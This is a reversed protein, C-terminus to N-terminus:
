FSYELSTVVGWDDEASEQPARNDTTYYFRLDLSLDEIFERTLSIDLNTRLRGSETLSPIVDISTKLDTKPFSHQFWAVTGGLYGELQDKTSDTRFERSALLGAQLMLDFRNTRFLFRGFGGGGSYRGSIGLEDNKDYNVMATWFWRDTLLRRYSNTFSIRQSSTDDSKDTMISDWRSSLEWNESRYLGNLGLNWQLTDSGKTGNLGFRAGGEIRDIWARQLKLPVFAVLDDIRHLEDKDRTSITLQEAAGARELSGIVRRGSKLEIRLAKATEISQIDTWRIYVTGMADTKFKLLDRGLEKVDGMIRDGNQLFVTDDYKAQALCASTLLGAFLCALGISKIPYFTLNLM